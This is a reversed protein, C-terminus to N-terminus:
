VTRKTEERGTLCDTTTGGEWNFWLKHEERVNVANKYHRRGLSVM